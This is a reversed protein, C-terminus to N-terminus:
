KPSQYMPSYLGPGFSSRGVTGEEISARHYSTGFRRLKQSELTLIYIEGGKLM